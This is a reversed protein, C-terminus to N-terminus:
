KQQMLRQWKQILVAIKCCNTAKAAETGPSFNSWIWACSLQNLWRVQEFRVAKGVCFRAPSAMMFGDHNGDIEESDANSMLMVMDGIKM